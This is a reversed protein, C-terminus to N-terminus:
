HDRAPDIRVEIRANSLGAVQESSSADLKIRVEVVRADTDKIPDNDLISKRGVKWGVRVVEGNLPVRSSQVWASAHQGVKVRHIDREYVEAVAHMESTNGLELIGSEGVKEGVRVNVKLVRGAIPSRINTAELEAALRASVAEAKAIEAEAVAVDEPRIIKMAALTCEAQLLQHRAIEVQFRKQDFDEESVVKKERLVETRRLSHEANQFTARLQEAGASQAALEELKAGSKVLALKAKAVLVQAEAEHLAAARQTQTDLSALLDGASVDSGEDVFLHELRTGDTTSATTIQLLKWGPELRGIAGVGRPTEAPTLTSVQAVPDRGKAGVLVGLCVSSMVVFLVTTTLVWSWGTKHRSTHHYTTM